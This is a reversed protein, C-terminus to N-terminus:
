VSVWSAKQWAAGPRDRRHKGRGRALAPRRTPKARLANAPSQGQGRRRPNGCSALGTLPSPREVLKGGPPDAAPPADTM